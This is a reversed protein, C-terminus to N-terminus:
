INYTIYIYIHPIHRAIDCHIAYIYLMYIYILLYILIDYIVYKTICALISRSTKSLLSILQHSMQHSKAECSGRSVQDLQGEAEPWRRFELEDRSVAEAAFTTLNNTQIVPAERLILDHKPLFVRVRTNQRETKPCAM